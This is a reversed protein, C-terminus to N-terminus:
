DSQLLCARSFFTSSSARGIRTANSERKVYIFSLTPVYWHINLFLIVLKNEDSALAM